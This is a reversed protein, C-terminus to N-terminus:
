KIKIFKRLPLIRSSFDLTTWKKKDYLKPYKLMAHPRQTAQALTLTTVCPEFLYIDGRPEKQLTRSGSTPTILTSYTQRRYMTHSPLSTNVPTSSLAGCHSFVHLCHTPECPVTMQIYRLCKTRNSVASGGYELQRGNNSIEKNKKAWKIEKRVTEGGKKGWNKGMKQKKRMEKKNTEIKGEMREWEKWMVEKKKTVYKSPNDRIKRRVTKVKWKKGKKEM